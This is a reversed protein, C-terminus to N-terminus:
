QPRAKAPPLSGLAELSAPCGRPRGLCGLCGLSGAQPVDGCPFFSSDVFRRISLGHLAFSQVDALSVKHESPNPYVFKLDLSEPFTVLDESFLDIGIICYVM